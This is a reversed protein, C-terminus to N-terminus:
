YAASPVAMRELGWKGVNAKPRLRGLGPFHCNGPVSKIGVAQEVCHGVADQDYGAARQGIALKGM